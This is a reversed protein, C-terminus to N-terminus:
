FYESSGGVEEPKLQLQDPKVSFQQTDGEIKLKVRATINGANKVPITCSSPKGVSSKLTLVQLSLGLPLLNNYNNFKLNTQNLQQFQAVPLLHCLYLSLLM